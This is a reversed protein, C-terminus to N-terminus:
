ICIYIYIYICVYKHIYVCIYIYTFLYGTKLSMWEACRPKYTARHSPPPWSTKWCPKM